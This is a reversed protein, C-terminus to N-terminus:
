SRVAALRELGARAERVYPELEPDAHRWVDVVFQYCDIAKKRQGLREAIRGEELMGLGFLPGGSWVWRDLVAGARDPQGLSNLLRAETLKEAYCDNKLCLTDPIARFLALAQASDARALALYATAALHLYRTRLQGQASRQRRAEQGARHAFRALSATDRRALWWPLGRLQRANDFYPIPWATGRDLARRFTRAAQSEPIVGMLSLDLFPDCMASFRSASPNLLLRRDVRYAQHLHGRYALGIALFQDYMLTDSWPEAGTGSRTTLTRLLRIPAEESDPWWGLQGLAADFLVWSSASDMMRATEPAHSRKPDLM